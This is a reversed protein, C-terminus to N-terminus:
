KTTAPPAPAVPAPAPAAGNSTQVPTSLAPTTTVPVTIPPALQKLQYQAERVSPSDADLSAAETLIKRENDKDGRQEYIRAAAIYAYPAFANKDGLNAAALYANLADDTKGTAEFASGLGLQASNRLDDNVETGGNLVKQYDSIASAYDRALYAADAASLQALTAQDTKPYQEAVKAFDEPTKAQTLAIRATDELQERQNLQYYYYGFGGAVAILAVLVPYVVLRWNVTEADLINSEDSHLTAM